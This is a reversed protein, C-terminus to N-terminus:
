AVFCCFELTFFLGKLCMLETTLNRVGGAPSSECM